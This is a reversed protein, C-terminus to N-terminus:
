QQEMQMPEGFAAGLVMGLIMAGAGALQILFPKKADARYKFVFVLSVLPVFLSGLGWAVSVKFVKILLMIGGVAAVIMGGFMLILGVIAM